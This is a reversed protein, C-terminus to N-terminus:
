KRTPKWCKRQWQLRHFSCDCHYHTHLWSKSEHKTWVLGAHLTKMGAVWSTCM